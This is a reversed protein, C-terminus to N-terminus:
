RVVGPKLDILSYVAEYEEAGIARIIYNIYADVLVRSTGHIMFYLKYPWEGYMTGRYVVHSAEPIGEAIKVCMDEGGKVMVMANHRFGVKEGNLTGGADLLVGKEVLEEILSLLSPEDMGVKEAIGKFPREGIPIDRLLALVKWSVGLEDIRPIAQPLAGPKSWSVGRFLDYKVAMKYTRLSKLIVFDEIEFERVLSNVRGLIEEDGAGRITFWLNFRRHERLYNHGVAPDEALRRALRALRGEDVMAGVLASSMGLSRYNPFFGIRKILGISKYQALRKLLEGDELGVRHALDSFPRESISFNYQIGNLIVKDLLGLKIVIGRREIFIIELPKIYTFM